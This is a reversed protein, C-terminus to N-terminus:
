GLVASSILRGRASTMLALADHKSVPWIYTHLGVENGFSGDDKCIPPTWIYDNAEALLKAFRDLGSGDAITIFYEIRALAYPLSVKGAM